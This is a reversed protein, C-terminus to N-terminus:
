TIVLFGVSNRRGKESGPEVGSRATPRRFEVRGGVVKFIHRHNKLLTQLGGCQQKLELLDDRSLLPVLELITASGSVNCSDAIQPPTTSSLLYSPVLNVVKVIVQRNIGTCNRAKEVKERAAFNM